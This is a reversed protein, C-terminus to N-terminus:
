IDHQHMGKNEDQQVAPAKNWLEQKISAPLAELCQSLRLSPDAIVQQMREKVAPHEAIDVGLGLSYAALFYSDRIDNLGTGETKKWMMAAQIASDSPMTTCVSGWAKLIQGIARVNQQAWEGGWNLRWKDTTEKGIQCALEGAVTMYWWHSVPWISGALGDEPSMAQLLEFRLPEFFPLFTNSVRGCQEALSIALSEPEEESSLWGCIYRKEQLVESQAYNEAHTIWPPQCSEGPRALLVLHPCHTPSYALDARLVPFITERGPQQLKPLSLLNASAIKKLPDVLLYRYEDTHQNLWATMKNNNEMM